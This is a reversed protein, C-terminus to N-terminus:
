CAYDDDYATSMGGHPTPASPSSYQVIQVPGSPLGSYASQVNQCTVAPDIGWDAAWYPVAPAYNGVIGSWNGPSAYIGVSNLGEAHLGDIAGQVMSANAALDSSWTANDEVDLWWEVSTNVGESQAQTFANQAAAFGFNCAGPSASANCAPDGSSSQTGYTLYIYLNLGGGAWGAESALEPNLGFSAGAV